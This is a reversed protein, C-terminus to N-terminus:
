TAARLFARAFNLDRDITRKVVGLLEAIREVPLGGFYFLEVVHAARPDEVELRRLGEDLDLAERADLAVPIEAAADLSVHRQGGGSKLAMRRRARDVLLHRMAKAAYDFFQRADVFAPLENRSVKAYLEHVLATTNLTDRPGRQRHALRKLDDYVRTFLADPNEVPETQM